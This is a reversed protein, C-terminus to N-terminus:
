GSPKAIVIPIRTLTGNLAYILMALGIALGVIEGTRPLARWGLVM